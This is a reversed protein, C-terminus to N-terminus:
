SLKASLEPLIENKRRSWSEALRKRDDDSLNGVIELDRSARPLLAAEILTICGVPRGPYACLRWGQAINRLADEAYLLLAYREAFAM